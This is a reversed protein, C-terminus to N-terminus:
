ERPPESPDEPTDVYDITPSLGYSPLDDRDFANVGIPPADFRGGPILRPDKPSEVTTKGQSAAPTGRGDDSKSSEAM